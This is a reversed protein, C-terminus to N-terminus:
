WRHLALQSPVRGEGLLSGCLSTKYDKDLEGAEIAADTRLEQLSHAHSCRSGYPCTTGSATSTCVSTKYTKPVKGQLCLRSTLCWFKKQASWTM